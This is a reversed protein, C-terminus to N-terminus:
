EHPELSIEKDEEESSINLAQSDFYRAHICEEKNVRRFENLESFYQESKEAVSFDTELLGAIWIYGLLPRDTWPGQNVPSPELNSKFMVVGAGKNADLSRSMNLISKPKHMENIANEKQRNNGEDLLHEEYHVPEPQLREVVAGTSPFKQTSFKAELDVSATNKVPEDIDRRGRQVLSVPIAQKETHMRDEIRAQYKSKKQQKPERQQSIVVERKRDKCIYSSGKQMKQPSCLAARAVSTEGHPVLKVLSTQEEKMNLTQQNKGKESIPLYPIQHNIQSRPTPVPM